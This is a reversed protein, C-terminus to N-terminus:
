SGKETHLKESVFDHALVNTQGVSLVTIRTRQSFVDRQAVKQSVFVYRHMVKFRHCRTQWWIHHDLYFTLFKTVHQVCVRGGIHCNACPSTRTLWFKCLPFPEYTLFDHYLINHGTYRHSIIHCIRHWINLTICLCSEYTLFHVRVWRKTRSCACSCTEYLCMQISVHRDLKFM